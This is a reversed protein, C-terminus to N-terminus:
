PGASTVSKPTLQPTQFIYAARDMCGMGLLKDGAQEESARGQGYSDFNVRICLTM